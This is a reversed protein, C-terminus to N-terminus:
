QLTTTNIKKNLTKKKKQYEKRKYEKVKEPNKTRFIKSRRIMTARSKELDKHYNNYDHIKQCIKCSRRGNPYVYTNDKTFEHGRKCHTKRANVASFSEGRLINVKATGQKLHKPNCCVRNRCLHDLQLEKILNGKHLTYSLRHARWMKRKLKFIGYGNHSLGAQWEWCPTNNYFNICSVSIKSLFRELDKPSIEINV